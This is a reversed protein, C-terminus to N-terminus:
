KSCRQELCFVAYLINAHSSNLRTSKRDTGTEGSVQSEEDMILYDYPEETFVCTRASFTTSLVVPYSKMFAAGDTYLEKVESFKPRVENSYVDYLGARFLVM